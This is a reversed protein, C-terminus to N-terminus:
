LDLVFRLGNNVLELTYPTVQGVREELAQKDLTVIQTVNAISDRPLGSESAQLVVNGPAAAWRMNSTVIVAVITAMRSTTLPDAQVILIPRRYGPEAGVPDPLEAWWIEGRQM